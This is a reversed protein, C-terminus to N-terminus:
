TLGEKGFEREMIKRQRETLTHLNVVLILTGGSSVVRDKVNLLFKMSNEFGNELMLYEFADIYVVHYGQSIAKVILDTLIDMRTPSIAYVTPSDSLKGDKARTVWFVLTEPHVDGILRRIDERTVIVTGPESMFGNFANRVAEKSSFMFAGPKVHVKTEESVPALPYFVFKVAGIAAMLRFLAGLLFGIPAFWLIYRTVPYTLNLAGLLILGWPFMKEVWHTSVVYNLLVLGLYIFSAGFFFSPVSGQITPNEIVNVALIFLWVYAVVISVSIYAVHKLKSEGYKLHVAGWLVLFAVFFNPIKSAVPYAAPAIKLGLPNLIYNEIDLANIFFAATLIAWGKDKTHYAKYLITLFLAWRSLFNLYSIAMHGSM